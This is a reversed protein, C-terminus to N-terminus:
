SADDHDLAFLRGHGTILERHRGVQEHRREGATATLTASVPEGVKAVGGAQPVLPCHPERRAVERVDEVWGPPLRCM